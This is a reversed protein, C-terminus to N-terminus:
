DSKNAKNKLQKKKMREYMKQEKSSLQRIEQLESWEELNEMIWLKMSVMDQRDKASAAEWAVPGVARQTLIEKEEDTLEMKALRRSYYKVQWMIEKMIVFPWQVMKVILIDRWTPQHFGAGFDTIEMVLEEIIPRLQENEFAKMEKKSKKGKGKKGITSDGFKWDEMDVGLGMEERRKKMVEEARSRLEISETSGGEGVKLDDM